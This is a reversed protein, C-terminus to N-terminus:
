RTGHMQQRNLPSDTMPPDLTCRLGRRLGRSLDTLHGVLENYDYADTHRGDRPNGDVELIGDQLVSCAARTKTIGDDEGPKANEAADQPIPGILQDLIWRHSLWVLKATECTSLQQYLKSTYLLVRRKTTRPCADM